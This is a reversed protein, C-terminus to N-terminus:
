HHVSIITLAALILFIFLILQTYYAPVGSIRLSHFWFNMWSQSRSLYTVQIIKMNKTQCYFTSRFYSLIYYFYSDTSLQLFLHAKSLMIMLTM